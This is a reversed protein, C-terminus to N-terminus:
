VNRGLYKRVHGWLDGSDLHSKVIFEKAGLKLCKGEEETASLNSLILIPFTYGKEVSHRLVAYGDKRPMLLDLLLLAPQARDILTIAEEGDRALETQVGREALELAIIERLVPEDEAILVRADTM